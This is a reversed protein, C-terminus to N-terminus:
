LPSIKRPTPLSIKQPPNSLYLPSWFSRISKPTGRIVATPYRPRHQPGRNAYVRLRHERAGTSSQNSFSGFSTREASTKFLKWGMSPDLVHLDLDHALVILVKSCNRIPDRYVVFQFNAEAVFWDYHRLYQPPRRGRFGFAGCGM